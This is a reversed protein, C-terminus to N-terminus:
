CQQLSFFFALMPHLHLINQWKSNVLRNEARRYRHSQAIILMYTSITSHNQQRKRVHSIETAKIQRGRMMWTLSGKHNCINKMQPYIVFCFLGGFLFFILLSHLCVSM